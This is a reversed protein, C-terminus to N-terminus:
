AFNETFDVLDYIEFYKNGNSGIAEIIKDFTM